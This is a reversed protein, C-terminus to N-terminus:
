GHSSNLRTSKRDQWVAFVHDPMEITPIPDPEAAKKADQGFAPVCWGALLFVIVLGRLFRM